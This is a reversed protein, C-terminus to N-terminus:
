RDLTIVFTWPFNDTTPDLTIIANSREHGDKFAVGAVGGGSTNYHPYNTGAVDISSINSAGGNDVTECFVIKLETPTFDLDFLQELGHRTSPSTIYLNSLRQSNIILGSAFISTGYSVDLTNAATNTNNIVVYLTTM